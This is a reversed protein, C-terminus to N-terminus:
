AGEGVELIKYPQFRKMVAVESLESLEWTTRFHYKHRFIGADFLAQKAKDQREFATREKWYRDIDERKGSARAERWGFWVRINYDVESSLYEQVIEKHELEIPLVENFDSMGGSSCDGEIAVLCLGSREEPYEEYFAETIEEVVEAVKEENDPMFPSDTYPIGDYAEAITIGKDLHYYEVESFWKGHKDVYADDDTNRDRLFAWIGRVRIDKKNVFIGRNGLWNWAQEVTMTNKM